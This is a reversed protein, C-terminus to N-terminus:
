SLKKMLDAAHSYRQGRSAKIDIRGMLVEFELLKRKARAVESAMEKAVQNLLKTDDTKM